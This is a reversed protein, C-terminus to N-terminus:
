NKQDNKDRLDKFRKKYSDLVPKMNRLKAYSYTFYFTNGVVNYKFGRLPYGIIDATEKETRGILINNLPQLTNMNGTRKETRVDYKTQFSTKMGHGTIYAQYQRGIKRIEFSKLAYDVSCGFLVGNLKTLSGSDLASIKKGKYFSNTYYENSFKMIAAGYDTEKKESSYCQYEYWFLLGKVRLKVNKFVGDNPCEVKIGKLDLWSNKKIMYKPTSYQKLSLTQQETLSITMLIVWLCIISKMTKDIRIKKKQM